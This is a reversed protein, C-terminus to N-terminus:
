MFYFIGYNQLQKFSQSEQSFSIIIAKKVTNKLMHLYEKGTKLENSKSEKIIRYFNSNETFLFSINM